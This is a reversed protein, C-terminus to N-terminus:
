AKFKKIFNHVHGVTAWLGGIGALVQGIMTWIDAETIGYKKGFLVALGVLLVLDGSKTKQGSEFVKFYSTAVQITRKVVTKNEEDM